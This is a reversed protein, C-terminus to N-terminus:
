KLKLSCLPPLLTFGSWEFSWTAYSHKESWSLHYIQYGYILKFFKLGYAVASGDVFAKAELAKRTFWALNSAKHTKSFIIKVFYSSPAIRYSMQDTKEGWM